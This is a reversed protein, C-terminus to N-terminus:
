RGETDYQCCLRCERVSHSVEERGAKTCPPVCTNAGCFVNKKQSGVTRVYPMCAHIITVSVRCFTKKQEKALQQLVYSAIDTDWKCDSLM